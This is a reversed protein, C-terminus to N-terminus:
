CSGWGLSNCGSGALCVLLCPKTGRMNDEGKGQWAQKTGSNQEATIFSKWRSEEEVVVREGKLSERGCKNDARAKM